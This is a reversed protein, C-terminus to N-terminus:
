RVAADRWVPPVLADRGGAGLRRCDRGGRCSPRGKAIEAWFAAEVHRQYKPHGPSSLKPGVARDAAQQRRAM